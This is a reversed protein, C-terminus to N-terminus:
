GCLLIYFIVGLSWVDSASTYQSPWPVFSPPPLLAFREPMSWLWYGARFGGACCVCEGCWEPGQKSVPKGSLIEPAVYGPTGCPTTMTQQPSTILKAFGLDAVQLVRPLRSASLRHRPSQTSRWARCVSRHKARGKGAGEGCSKEAEM